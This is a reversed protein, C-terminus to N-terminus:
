TSRQARPLGVADLVRRAALDFSNTRVYEIANASLEFREESDSVLSRIRAALVHADADSGVKVVVDDPLTAAPGLATVVTPIGFRLCDGVAASVEGNSARRLQVAVDAQRLWSEYEELDIRSTVVVRDALDGDEVLREIAPRIEVAVDGVIALRLEPDEAALLAFAEVIIDTAKIEHQYGFTAIWRVEPRADVPEPAPYGFGIDIIDDVRDPRQLRALDATFSSTTLVRAVRDVVPGLLYLGADAAENWTLWGVEGLPAEIGQYEQHLFHHFWEPGHGHYRGHWEFFGTFRAEHIMASGPRRGMLDYAQAHHSSNGMVYIVEDYPLLRDRELLGPGTIMTVNPLAPAVHAEPDEAVLDVDVFAALAHALRWSYDAIGSEAPPVPTVMAIRQQELAPIAPPRSPLADIAEITRDAVQDWRFQETIHTYQRSRHRETDPSDLADTICRAIDAPNEPDFQLAPETVLEVMSSSNSAISLTGSLVAEAIPLGFGEYISPFVFLDASQYLLSLASDPVFGTLLVDNEIGIDRAQSMLAEREPPLVRCVIVLQRKGRIRDPLLSYAELLGELNKRFDIGGTYMLFGPRLGDVVTLADSLAREQDEPPFFHYSVGTGINVVRHEPLDLLRIGDTATAESICLLLDAQRVFERRAWHISTWISDFLYRDPFLMPILDYLTVVTEISPDRAWMPWIQDLTLDFEFPSTVYYTDPPLGDVIPGDPTHARVLGTGVFAEIESPLGRHPNVLLSHIRDPHTAVIAKVQEFIYRGIGRGRSSHGQLPQLDIAIRRRDSM